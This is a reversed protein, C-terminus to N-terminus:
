REEECIKFVTNYHRKVMGHKNASLRTGVFTDFDARQAISESSANPDQSLAERVFDRVERLYRLEWALWDRIADRGRLVSGHGPVLIEIDMGDITELSQELRKSDHFIAPIIGTVVTDAAFLLRDEEIYVSTHDASHGPTPFIHLHKDGMDLLLEDRFTITPKLVSDLLDEYPLDKANAYRLIAHAIEECIDAHAYVEAGDFAAGGLVHDSHGHTLIVRNPEYGCQRIFDAMAQGEEPKLGVDIAIAGRQTLVIGNKGEAVSHDVSYIGPCLETIM